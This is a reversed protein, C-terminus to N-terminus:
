ETQNEPASELKANEVQYSDESSEPSSIEESIVEESVDISRRKPSFSSTLTNLGIDSQRRLDRLISAERKKNCTFRLIKDKDESSLTM